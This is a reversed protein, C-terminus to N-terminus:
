GFYLPPRHGSWRSGSRGTRLGRHASSHRTAPTILHARGRTPTGPGPQSRSGRVRRHGQQGPFGPQVHPTLAATVKPASRSAVGPCPTSPMSCAPSTPRSRSRSTRAAGTCTTRPLASATFLMPPSSRGALDLGDLLPIIMPIENTKAGVETQAVVGADAALAALLHVQSGDAAKAGRM